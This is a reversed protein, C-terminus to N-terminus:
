TQDTWDVAITEDHAVQRLHKSVVQKYRTLAAESTAALVITLTTANADMQGTGTPFTMLASTPTREVKVRHEFHKALRTM